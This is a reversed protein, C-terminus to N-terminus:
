ARQLKNTQKQTMNKYLLRSSFVRLSSGVMEKRNLSFQLCVLWALYTINLDLSPSHNPATTLKNFKLNQTRSSESIKIGAFSISTTAVDLGSSIQTHHNQKRIAALMM